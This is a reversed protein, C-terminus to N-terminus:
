RTNKIWTSEETSSLVSAFVVQRKQQGKKELPIEQTKFFNVGGGPGTLLGLPTGRGIRTQSVAVM